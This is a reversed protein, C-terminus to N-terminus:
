SAGALRSAERKLAARDIKGIPLMPMSEILRFYKPIKYNALRGRCFTHLATEDSVAGPKWTVFATGVEGYLRDPTAIVAVAAVQPHEELAMEVERPYVNYGGSKFMERLRGILRYQGDPEELAADGTRLWGDATFAAATAEPKNLYGKMLFDGRVQIEGSEGRPVPRGEPDAIRVDYRPDPRGITRALDELSAGANSYAVSGVTETMGYFSSLRPCLKHLRRVLDEPAMAGSWAIDQVSRTMAPQFAPHDLTLQFMTPVQGWLTIAEARLLPGIKAPDFREAFVVTGGSVLAYACLDGVCGVHNVPLNNLVRLPDARLYDRQIRSCHVLGRHPLLAGKPRGTTGSTYVLLAADQASVNAIRDEPLEATPALLAAIGAEAFQAGLELILVHRISDHEAALAQADKAFDRGEIARPAILVVPQADGVVYRLEGLTYKPNLGLWTAGIRVTALFVIFFEPRPTSLMAVREGPAVGLALLRSACRDILKDLEAYSIRSGNLVLADRRPCQGAWHAPYDSIRPYEPTAFPPPRVCGGATDRGGRPDAM